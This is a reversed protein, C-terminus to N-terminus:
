TCPPASATTSADIDSVYTAGTSLIFRVEYAVGADWPYLLTVFATGHPAITARPSATFPWFADNVSVQAITVPQAGNNRLQFVTMGPCLFTQVVELSESLTASPQAAATRAEWGSAVLGMLLCCAVLVAGRSSRWRVRRPWRLLTTTAM